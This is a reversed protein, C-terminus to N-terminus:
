LPFTRLFQVMKGPDFRQVHYTNAAPLRALLGMIGDPLLTILPLVGAGANQNGGGPVYNKVAFGGSGGGAGGSSTNIGTNTTPVTASMTGPGGTAIRKGAAGRIPSDNGRLYKRSPTETESDDLPRKPSAVYPGHPGLRIDGSDV